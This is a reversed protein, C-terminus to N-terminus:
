EGVEQNPTSSAAGATGGGLAETFAAGFAGLFAGLFTALLAAGAFFADGALLAALVSTAAWGGPLAGAFRFAPAVGAFFYAALFAALTLSPQPKTWQDQEPLLSLPRMTTEGTDLRAGARRQLSSSRVPEAERRYLVLRCRLQPALHVRLPESSPGNTKLGALRKAQGIVGVAGILM